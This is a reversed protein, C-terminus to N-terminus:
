TSSMSSARSSRRQTPIWALPGRQEGDITYEVIGFQAVSWGNLMTTDLQAIAKHLAKFRARAEDKGRAPDAHELTHLEVDEMRLDAYASENNELVDLATRVIAVRNKSMAPRISTGCRGRLCPPPSWARYSKPGPGKLLAKVVAVDFYM